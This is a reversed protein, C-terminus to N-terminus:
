FTQYFNLFYIEDIEGGAMEMAETGAATILERSTMRGFSGFKTHGYGIIGVERM